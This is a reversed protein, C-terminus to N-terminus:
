IPEPVKFFIRLKGRSEPVSFIRPEGAGKFAPQLCPSPMFCDHDKNKPNALLNFRSPITPQSSATKELNLLTYIGLGLAM